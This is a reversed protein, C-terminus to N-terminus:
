SFTQGQDDEQAVAELIRQRVNFGLLDHHLTEDLHVAFDASVDGVWSSEHIHDRDVLSTLIETEDVIDFTSEDDVADTIFFGLVLQALNALHPDAGLTDGVDAGVVCAGDAVGVRQDLDVVGDLDIDVRALDDIVDLEVATIQAHDCATTVQSTDTDDCVSLFM